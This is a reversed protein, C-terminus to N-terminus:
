NLSEGSCSAYVVDLRGLLPHLARVGAVVRLRADVVVVHQRRRVALFHVQVVVVGTWVWVARAWGSDSASLNVEVVVILRLLCAMVWAHQTWEVVVLNALDNSSTRVRLHAQNQVVSVISLIGHLNVVFNLQLVRHLFFRALALNLTQLAEGVWTNDVQMVQNVWGLLNEHNSIVNLSDRQSLVNSLQRISLHSLERGSTDEALDNFGHKVEMSLNRDDMAINLQIIHKNFFACPHDFQNIHAERHKSLCRVLAELNETARRGVHSWLNSALAVVLAVWHVDPRTANQQVHHQNAREGEAAGALLIKILPDLSAM